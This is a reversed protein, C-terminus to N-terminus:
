DEHAHRRRRDRREYYKWTSGIAYAIAAVIYLGGCLVLDAACKEGGNETYYFEDDAHALHEFCADGEHTCIFNRFMSRAFKSDLWLILISSPKLLLFHLGQLLFTSSLEKEAIRYNGMSGMCRENQGFFGRILGWTVMTLWITALVVALELRRGRIDISATKKMVTAIFGGLVGVIIFSLPISVVGIDYLIPDRLIGPFLALTLASYVAVSWYFRIPKYCVHKHIVHWSVNQCQRSCYYSRLCRVCKWRARRRCLSCAWRRRAVGRKKLLRRARCYLAVIPSTIIPALPRLWRRRVVAAGIQWWIHPDRLAALVHPPMADNWEEQNAPREPPPLTYSTNCTECKKGNMANPHRSRCRWQEVCLFHVFAMSGACECPALLPNQLAESHPTYAPFPEVPEKTPPPTTGDGENDDDDQRQRTHQGRTTAGGDAADAAPIEEEDQLGERCIRCFVPETPTPPFAPSPTVGDDYNVLKMISTTPFALGNRRCIIKRDEIEFPETPMESVEEEAKDSEVLEDEKMMTSSTEPPIDTLIHSGLIETAFSFILGTSLRSLYKSQGAEFKPEDVEDVKGMAMYGAFGGKQGPWRLRLWYRDYAVCVDDVIVVESHKIRRIPNATNSNAANSNNPQPTPLIEVGVNTEYQSKEETLDFPRAFVHLGHRWPEEENIGPYCVFVPM